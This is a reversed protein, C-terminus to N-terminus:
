WRPRGRRPARGRAPAPRGRAPDPGTRPKFGPIGPVHRVEFKHEGGAKDFKVRVYNDEGAPGESTGTVTGTGLHPHHVRDGLMPVGVFIWGHIYGKPGVLDIVQGSATAFQASITVPM